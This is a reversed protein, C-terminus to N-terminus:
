TQGPFHKSLLVKSFKSWLNSSYRLVETARFLHCSAVVSHGAGEMKKPSGTRWAVMQVSVWSVLSYYPHSILRNSSNCMVNHGSYAEPVKDGYVGTHVLHPDPKRRYLMSSTLM